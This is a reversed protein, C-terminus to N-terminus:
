PPLLLLFLQLLPTHVMNMKCLLPEMHLAAVKSMRRAPRDSSETYVAVDSVAASGVRASAVVGALM